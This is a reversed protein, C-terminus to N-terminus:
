DLLEFYKMLLPNNLSRDKDMYWNRPAIVRKSENYGLYSAWWSFTSNATIYHDCLALLMFDETLSMGLSSIDIGGIEKVFSSTLEPDDGFVLFKADTPFRNIALQYYDLPITQFVNSAAKSSVFDGRRIHIGVRPVGPPSSVREILYAFEESLEAFLTQRDLASFVFDPHQFYGDLVVWSCPKRQLRKLSESSGICAYGGLSTNLVRGLRLRTALGAMGSASTICVNSLYKAVFGVELDRFTEYAGLFRTDLLVKGGSPPGAAYLGACLQFLQNGLGGSLRVFINKLSIKM